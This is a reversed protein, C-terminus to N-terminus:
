KCSNELYHEARAKYDGYAAQKFTECATAKDGLKMQAEAIVFHYKAADSRSGRHMDLGEQATAVAQQNDGKAYLASARYFLSKASPDVYQKMEDLASLATNADDISPNQKNLAKSAISVYEDRIREEALNATRTDGSEQGVQSAQQLTQMAEETRDLNILALGKGYFMYADNPAYEAGKTFHSLAQDYNENKLAKNGWSKALKVLRGEIQSAAGSQETEDALQLARELQPYAESSNGQKAAQMASAFTQKLEELKAQDASGGNDQALAPTSSLGFVAACLLLASAWQSLRRIMPQVTRNM